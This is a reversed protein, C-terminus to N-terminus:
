CILIIKDLLFFFLAPIWAKVVTKPRYDNHPCTQKQRPKKFTKKGKKKSQKGFFNEV